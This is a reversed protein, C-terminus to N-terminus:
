MITFNVKESVSPRIKKIAQKFHEMTVIAPVDPDRINHIMFNKLASISAERILAALDAGTYGQCQESKAIEELNVDSAM